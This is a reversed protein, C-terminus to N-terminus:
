KNILSPIFDEHTESIRKEIQDRARTTKALYPLCSMLDSDGRLFAVEAINDTQETIMNTFTGRGIHTNWDIIRLHNAVIKDESDGYQILFDCFANKLKKFYYRYSPESLARGQSNVFLAGKPTYDSLTNSERYLDLHQRYLIDGWDKIQIVLQRRQKKAYGGGSSGKLDTRMNRSDIDLLFDGKSVTRAFQTRKTNVVESVRLGGFIQLYLGLTIPNAILIAIEFLLPLYKIPFSHELKKIKKSPLIPDFLSEYYYEGNHQNKRKFGLLLENDVYPLLENNNLWVYFYTLTKSISLVTKRELSIKKENIGDENKAEQKRLSLDSLFDTGIQITIDSLKNLKLKRKNKILYNLFQIINNAHKRQTNYKKYKWRSDEGLIFSTLGHIIHVDKSIDKLGIAAVQKEIISGDRKRGWELWVPILVFRINDDNLKIIEATHSKDNM